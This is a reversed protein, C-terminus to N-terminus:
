KDLNYTSIIHSIVEKNEPTLSDEKLLKALSTRATIKKYSTDPPCHMTLTYSINSLFDKDTCQRIHSTLRTDLRALVEDQIEKLEHNKDRRNLDEYVQLFTDPNSPEAHPTKKFLRSLLGPFVFM